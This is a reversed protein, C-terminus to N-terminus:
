KVKVRHSSGGYVTKPQDDTIEKYQKISIDVELYVNEEQLEIARSLFSKISTIISDVDEKKEHILNNNERDRMGKSHGSLYNHSHEQPISVGNYGDDYGRVYQNYERVTITM